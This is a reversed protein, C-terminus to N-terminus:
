VYQCMFNLIGTHLKSSVIFQLSKAEKLPGWMGPRKGVDEFELILDEEIKLERVWIEEM